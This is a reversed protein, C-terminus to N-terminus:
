FLPANASEFEAREQDIREKLWERVETLSKAVEDAETSEIAELARIARNLEPVSPLEDTSMTSLASWDTVQDGYRQGEPLRTPLGNWIDYAAREEREKAVERYDRGSSAQQDVVREQPKNPVRKPRPASQGAPRGEISALRRKQDPIPSNERLYAQYSPNDRHANILRDFAQEAEAIQKRLTEPKRTRSLKKAIAAYENLLSDKSADVTERQRDNSAPTLEERRRNLIARASDIVVPRADPLKALDNLAREAEDLDEVSQARAIAGGVDQFVEGFPLNGSGDKLVERRLTSSDDGAEMRDLIRRAKEMDALTKSREEREAPTLNEPNIRNLDDQARDLTTRGHSVFDRRVAEASRGRGFSVNQDKEFRGIEVEHLIDDVSKQARTNDRRHDISGGRPARPSRRAREPTNPIPADGVSSGPQLDPDYVNYLDQLLQASKDYAKVKNAVRASNGLAAEMREDKTPKFTRVTSQFDRQAAPRDPGFVAPIEQDDVLARILADRDYKGGSVIPRNRVEAERREAGEVDARIRAEREERLTRESAQRQAEEEARDGATPVYDDADRRERELKEIYPMAKDLLDIADAAEDRQRQGVWYSDSAMIAEAGRRINAMEELVPQLSEGKKNLDQARQIEGRAHGRIGPYIRGQHSDHNQNYKRRLAEQSEVREARARHEQNRAADEAVRSTSQEAQARQREAEQERKLDAQEQARIERFNKIRNDLIDRLAQSDRYHRENQGNVGSGAPRGVEYQRIANDLRDRAATYRRLNSDMDPGQTLARAADQAKTFDKTLGDRIKKERTSAEREERDQAAREPTTDRSTVVVPGGPADPDPRQSPPIYPEVPGDKPMASVKARLEELVKKDEAIKRKHGEIHRPFLAGSYRPDALRRERIEISSEMARLRNNRIRESQDPNERLIKANVQFTNSATRFGRNEINAEGHRKMTERDEEEQRARAENEQRAKERAADGKAKQAQERKKMVSARKRNIAKEAEDIAQYKALIEKEQAKQEPTMQDLKQPLAARHRGLEANAEQLRKQRNKLEYEQEEPTQKSSLNKKANTIADDADRLAGRYTVKPQNKARHVAGQHGHGGDRANMYTAYEGPTLADVEDKQHPKLSSTYPNTRGKSREEDKMKQVRKRAAADAADSASTDGTPTPSTPRGKSNQGVWKETTPNWSAGPDVRSMIAGISDPSKGGEVAALYDRFNKESLDRLKPKHYDNVGKLKPHSEIFADREKSGQGGMAGGKPATATGPGSIEDFAQYHSLGRDRAGMYTATHKPNLNTVADVQAPTLGDAWGGKKPATQGKGTGKHKRVAAAPGTGNREIDNVAAIFEDDPLAALEDKTAKRAGFTAHHLDLFSKKGGAERVNEMTALPYEQGVTGGGINNGMGEAPVKRGKKAPADPVKAPEPTKKPEPAKSKSAAKTAADRAKIARDKRSKESEIVLDMMDKVDQPTARNRKLNKAARTQDEIETILEGHRRMADREAKTTGKELLASQAKEHGDIRDNTATMANRVSLADERAKAAAPSEEPTEDKPEPAKGPAKKPAPKKAKPAPKEGEERDSNTGGGLKENLAALADDLSDAPKIQDDWTNHKLAVYKGTSDDKGVDYLNGKRDEVLDFGKFVPDKIRIRDLSGLGRPLIIAGIPRKFRRVGAATRVYRAKAEMDDHIAKQEAPSLDEILTLGHAEAHARNARREILEIISM